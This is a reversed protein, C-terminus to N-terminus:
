VPMRRAVAIYQFAMLDPFLFPAVTVRALRTAAAGLRGIESQDEILRYNRQLREIALGCSVLLADLSRRTFIRLHTRDRIGHETYSWRDVILRLLVTYFRMNPVSVVIRGTPSLYPLYRRLATEPDPLHELVDAFIIYDFDGPSFPISASLIDGEVVNDLRDRAKAVALPQAEVGAVYAAGADRLAAGLAGSACGVDLFRRGPAQVVAQIDPRPDDYYRWSVARGSCSGRSDPPM